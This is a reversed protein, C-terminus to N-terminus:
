MLSLVALVKPSNSRRALPWIMSLEAVDQAGADLAQAIAHVRQAVISALQPVPKTQALGMHSLAVISLVVVLIGGLTRLNKM